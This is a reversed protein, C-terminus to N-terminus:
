DENPPQDFVCVSGGGRTILTSSVVPEVDTEMLSENGSNSAQQDVNQESTSKKDERLLTNGDASDFSPHTVSDQKPENISQMEAIRDACHKCDMVISKIEESSVPDFMTVVDANLLLSKVTNFFSATVPCMVSIAAIYNEQMLTCSVAIRMSRRGLVRWHSKCAM